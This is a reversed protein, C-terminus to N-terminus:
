SDTKTFLDMYQEFVFIRKRTRKTMEKLIGAECFAKVLANSCPTSISLLKEVDSVRVVPNSFLKDLFAKAAGSRRGMNFVKEEAKARLKLIENFVRRGKTATEDIGSLFFKIWHLMDNSERVRTLADYYSGRNREFFDSLYLSPKALFGYNM